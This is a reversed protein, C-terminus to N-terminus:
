QRPSAKTATRKCTKKHGLSAKTALRKCTEDENSPVLRPPQGSVLRKTSTEFRLNLANWTRPIKKGDHHELCYAEKGVREIVRFPGEWNPTLKNNDATWTFKRLVLDQSKFQLSSLKKCQQKAARAKIVYERIQVVERAKWSFCSLEHPRNRLKWPFSRRRASPKSSPSKM